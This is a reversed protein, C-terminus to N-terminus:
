IHRTARSDADRGKLRAYESKAFDELRRFKTRATKKKM